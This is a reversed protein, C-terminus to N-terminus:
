YLLYHKIKNYFKLSKAVYYTTNIKLVYYYAETLNLSEMITEDFDSYKRLSGDLASMRNRFFKQVNSDRLSIGM